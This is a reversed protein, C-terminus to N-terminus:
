ALTGDAHFVDAVEKRVELAVDKLIAVDSSQEICSRM